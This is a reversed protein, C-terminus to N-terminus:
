QYDVNMLLGHRGTDDMGAAVSSSRIFGVGGLGAVGTGARAATTVAASFVDHRGFDRSQGASMEPKLVCAARAPLTWRVPLVCPLNLLPHLPRPLFEPLTLYMNIHHLNITRPDLVYLSIQDLNEHRLGNRAIYGV